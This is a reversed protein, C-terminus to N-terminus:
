SGLLYFGLLRLGVALGLGVLAGIMVMTWWM